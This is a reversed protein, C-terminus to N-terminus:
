SKFREDNLGQMAMLLLYVRLLGSTALLLEINVLIFIAPQHTKPLDGNSFELLCLCLLEAFSQSWEM